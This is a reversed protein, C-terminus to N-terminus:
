RPISTPPAPLPVKALPTATPDWDTTPALARNTRVIENRHELADLM